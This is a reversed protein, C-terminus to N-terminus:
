GMHEKIDQHVVEDCFALEEYDNEVKSEYDAQDRYVYTPTTDLHNDFCAQFM